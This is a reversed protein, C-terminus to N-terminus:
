GAKWERYKEAQYAVLKLCSAIVAADDVLGFGRIFDPILDIPSFLRSLPRGETNLFCHRRDAGLRVAPHPLSQRAPLM